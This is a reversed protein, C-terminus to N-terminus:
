ASWDPAFAPDVLRLGRALGGIARMEADDLQFAFVQLNQRLHEETSAKPLAVVGEQQVLWRLVVHPVSLGRSSAISRLLPDALVRGRALPCYAALTLGRARCLALLDRQDLFPHYEVQNCAIPVLELARALLGRPFNSVGISRALGAGRVQELAELTVELPFRSSPWHLLLCDVQELRLRALSEAVVAIPDGEVLHDPWVKTTLVLEERPLASAALAAGVEAENGYGQATDIARYGIELALEVAERCARGELQWTGLGIAPPSVTPPAARPASEREAEAAM